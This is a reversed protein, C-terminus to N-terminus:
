RRRYLQGYFEIGSVTFETGWQTNRGIQVLRLKKMPGRGALKSMPVDFTAHKVHAAHSPDFCDTARRDLVVWACDGWGVPKRTLTVDREDSLCGQLEWELPAATQPRVSTSFTYHTPWVRFEGFDIGVWSYPMPPTQFHSPGFSTINHLGRVSDANSENPPIDAGLVSCAVKVPPAAGESPNDTRVLNHLRHGCHTALYHLVGKGDYDQGSFVFMKRRKALEKSQVLSSAWHRCVNIIGLDLMEPDAYEFVRQTVLTPLDLISCRGVHSANRPHPEVWGSVAGPRRPIVPAKMHKLLPPQGGGWASNRDVVMGVGLSAANTTGHGAARNFAFSPLPPAQEVDESYDRLLPHAGSGSRPSGLISNSTQYNPKVIAKPGGSGTIVAMPQTTPLSVTVRMPPENRMSAYPVKPLDDDNIVKQRTALAKMSIGKSGKLSIPVPKMPEGSM